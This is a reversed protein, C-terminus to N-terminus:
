NKRKLYDGPMSIGRLAAIKAAMSQGGSAPSTPQAPASQPHPAAAQPQGPRAAEPPHNYNPTPAISGGAGFANMLSDDGLGAEDVDDDQAYPNDTFVDDSQLYDLKKQVAEDMPAFQEKLTRLLENRDM